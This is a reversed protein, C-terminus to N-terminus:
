VGYLTAVGGEAQNDAFVKKHRKEEGKEETARVRWFAYLLHMGVESSKKKIKAVLLIVFKLCAIIGKRSLM